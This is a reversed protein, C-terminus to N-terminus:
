KEGKGTQMSELERIRNELEVVEDDRSSRGEEKANEMCKGCAEVTVQPHNRSRSQRTDSQGCLGAGCTGCFVEFDVDCKCDVQNFTPM